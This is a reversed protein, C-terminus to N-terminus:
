AAAMLNRIRIVNYTAAAFTFMWGVRNQARSQKRRGRAGQSVVVGNRSVPELKDRTWVRLVTICM